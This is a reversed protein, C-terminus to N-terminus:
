EEYKSILTLFGAGGLISAVILYSALVPPYLSPSATLAFYGLLLGVALALLGVIRLIVAARDNM